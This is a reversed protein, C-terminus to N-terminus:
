KKPIFKVEFLWPWYKGTIFFTQTQENYAIGNLVGESGVKKREESHLLHSADVVGTVQRTNKDVRLIYDKFWVNFYFHDGVAIMDNLREVKNGNWFISFTDILKFDQSYCYVNSSGNTMLLADEQDCLGWGEGQYSLTTLLKLDDLDYVFATEEQWMVQFLRNKVIAIGEAFYKEPLLLHKLLIGTKLDIQKLSSKGYLGTSEYLRNDQIALGQTFSTPDHPYIAVIEPILYEIEACLIQVLNLFLFFSTFFKGM